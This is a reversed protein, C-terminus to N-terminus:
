RWGELNDDGVFWPAPTYPNDDPREGALWRRQFEIAWDLWYEDNHTAFAMCTRDYPDEPYYNYSWEYWNFGWKIPIKKNVFEPAEADPNDRPREGNNWRCQFEIAWKAWDKYRERCSYPCPIYDFNWRYKYWNFM